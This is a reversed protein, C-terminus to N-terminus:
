RSARPTAWIFSAAKILLSCEPGGARYEQRQGEGLSVHLLFGAHYLKYLIVRLM